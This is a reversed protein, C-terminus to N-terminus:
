PEFRAPEPAQDRPTPPLDVEFGAFRARIAEALNRAAPKRPELAASLIHRAEDEVSRGNSAASARLEAELRADIDRIVVSAM